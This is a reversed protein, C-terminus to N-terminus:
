KRYRKGRWGGAARVPWGHAWSPTITMIRELETVSGWGEPVECVIEDYVHLVVRYGAAELLLTAHKLLDRSTAQVINEVLRGGWTDMRIWGVPGNKPNTNNGEYSISWEDRRRESPRLRPRHYVLSRGSILTLYLVDDRVQFVHGRYMVPLGPFQIARVAAGEIGFLEPVWGAHTKRTQGGWFEVIAPSAARWALIAQKIEEESLFADAGFAIWAGIWGQYGSALEALKGLKRRPHVTDPDFPIGTISAASVEYIRGHTRFVDQRWKEGALEALVVAEIASYDSSILDCGPGAIFLGRLCGAIVAFADDFYFEALALSAGRTVILADNASEACWDVPSERILDSGCWPCAAKSRGFYHGCPCLAVDPGHNPLNTPQPGNGTARGTRAGHYTFLDRLRGDACVQNAMAFLKKVAASGVLQRIELARRAFPTLGGPEALVASVTDEDLSAMHVGQTVLWASLRQIESAANVAGCTVLYLEDNYRALAEEVIAICGRVSPMDIAVGRDNIAQDAQWYALESM